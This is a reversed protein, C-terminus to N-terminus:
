VEEERGAFTMGCLGCGRQFVNCAVGGYMYIGGYM